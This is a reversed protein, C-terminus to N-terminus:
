FGLVSPPLVIPLAVLAAMPAKLWSRTRALWWAMPTGVVLLIVTTLTAVKLTLGIAQLDSPTLFM